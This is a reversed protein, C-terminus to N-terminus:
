SALAVTLTEGQMVFHLAAGKTRSLQLDYTKSVYTKKAGYVKATLRHTGPTVQIPDWKTTQSIFLIPKQFSENFIPTGDLMVVLNGQRLTSKISITVPSTAGAAGTLPKAPATAAPTAPLGANVTPCPGATPSATPTAMWERISRAPTTTTGPAAAPTMLSTGALTKGTPAPAANEAPAPAPTPKPAMWERISQAPPTTADPEGAAFSQSTSAGLAIMTLGALMRSSLM